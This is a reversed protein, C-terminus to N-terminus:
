RALVLLAADVLAIGVAAWFPARGRTVLAVAVLAAVLLLAALRLAPAADSAIAVIVSALSLVVVAALRTRRAGLRHPLGRVGTAEDDALDPLANVLHAGVGLLAGVAPIWPPPLAGSPGALSVFVTLGGFAVAYPAWSWWTAKLGLNYAWGAAVCALHVLGAILGCLLSLLVTALVAAACAVQVRGVSLQGTALPKDSRGVVADRDRDILDNTWGITLQGSLM